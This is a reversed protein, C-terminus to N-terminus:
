VRGMRHVQSLISLLTYLLTYLACNIKGAQM